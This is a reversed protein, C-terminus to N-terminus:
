RQNLQAQRKAQQLAKTTVSTAFVAIATHEADFVQTGEVILVDEPNKIAEAVGRWQKAGIYVIYRTGPMKAPVPIGKPLAPLQGSHTMLLLTFDQRAIVKGPKGILTVKVTNVKGSQNGIEAILAGREAWTAPPVSPVSDAGANPQKRNRWFIQAVQDKRGRALLADRVIKFYVGGLTRRRTGDATLMGGAAEIAQAERLWALAQEAGCLRVIQRLQARPTADTEGLALAIQSAIEQDRAAPGNTPDTTM